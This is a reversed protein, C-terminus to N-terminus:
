LKGKRTAMKSFRVIVNENKVNALAEKEITCTLCASLFEDGIRNRLDSKVLKMASFCREVTATAIPLVLALKLLRYVM